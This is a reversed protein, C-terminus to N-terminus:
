NGDSSIEDDNEESSSDSGGAPSENNNDPVGVIGWKIHTVAELRDLISSIPTFLGFEKREGDYSHIMGVVGLGGSGRSTISSGHDSLAEVTNSNSYDDDLIEDEIKQLVWAGSDGGSAFLPSGSAVAFESSQMKGDAWYVLRPGNVKGSTYKSTSGYKFVNMGPITKRVVKKVYLNGFVLAPDYESFSVDDGLYNRCKLHKNCKLIALDSISGDVITREGWVVQGFPEDSQVKKSSNEVSIIAKQFEKREVSNLPFKAKENELAKRYYNILVPSPVSMSPYNNGSGSSESLCVHACTIAFTSKSYEALSSDNSDVKPYLYGGLTGSIKSANSTALSMSIPPSQPNSPVRYPAKFSGHCARIYNKQCYVHIDPTSNYLGSIMDYHDTEPTPFGFSLTLVSFEPSLGRLVPAIFAGEQESINSYDSFAIIREMLSDLVAQSTLEPISGVAFNSPYPVTGMTQPVLQLKMGLQYLSRLLYMKLRQHQVSRLLTDTFHLSAKIIQSICPENYLSISDPEVSDLAQSNVATRLIQTATTAARVLDIVKTQYQDLVVKLEEAVRKLEIGINVTSLNSSTSNNSSQANNNQSTTSANYFSPSQAGTASSISASSQSNGGYISSSPAYRYMSTSPSISARVPSSSPGIDALPNSMNQMDPMTVHGPGIVSTQFNRQPTGSPRQIRIPAVNELGSVEQLERVKLRGHDSSSSSTSPAGAGAVSDEDPISSLGYHNRSSGKSSFTSVTNANRSFVSSQYTSITSPRGSRISQNSPGPQDFSAPETPWREISTPTKPTVPNSRNDNSPPENPPIPRESSDNGTGSSTNMNRWNGLFNKYPNPM